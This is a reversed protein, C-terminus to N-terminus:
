KEVVGRVKVSLPIAECAVYKFSLVYSAESKHNKLRSLLHVWLFNEM